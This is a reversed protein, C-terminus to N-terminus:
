RAPQSRRVLLVGDRLEGRLGAGPLVAFVAQDAGLDGISGGLEIGSAAAALAPNEFAIRWGTERSVWDLLERLSRGRVEFPPAARLVWDWDPGYIPAPHREVRGDRHVTLVEGADALQRERQREVAVRGGRVQVRLLDAQPALRVSFRTGVDRAVGLPTRVEIKESSTGESGTDVYVAGRSLELRSAAALRLESASDLRILTGASLRVALYGDGGDAGTRLHAGAPVVSGRRAALVGHATEITAVGRLAAVSGLPPPASEVQRWRAVGLALALSAALALGLAAVRRRRRPRHLSRWAQRAAARIAELDQDALPLRPGAANLLRDVETEEDDLTPGASRERDTM